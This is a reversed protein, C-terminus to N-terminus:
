ITLEHLSCLSKSVRNQCQPAATSLCDVNPVCDVIVALVSGLGTVAVVLWVIKLCLARPLVIAAITTGNRGQCPIPLCDPTDSQLLIDLVTDFSHSGHGQFVKPRVQGVQSVNQSRIKSVTRGLDKEISV